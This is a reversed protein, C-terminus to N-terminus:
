DLYGNILYWELLKFGNTPVSDHKWAPIDKSGTAELELACVIHHDQENGLIPLPPCSVSRASIVSKKYSGNAHAIKWRGDYDPHVRVNVKVM